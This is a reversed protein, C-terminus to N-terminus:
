YRVFSWAARVHRGRHSIKMIPALNTNCEDCLSHNSDEYINTSTIKFCKKKQICMYLDSGEM